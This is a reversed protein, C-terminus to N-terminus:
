QPLSGPRHFVYIRAHARVIEYTEELHELVADFNWDLVGPPIGADEFAQDVADVWGLAYLQKAM